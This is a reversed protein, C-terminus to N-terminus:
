EHRPPAQELAALLHPRFHELEPTALGVIKAEDDWRRLRIAQPAFPQKAFAAAEAPSYPGGQLALSRRSADSLSQGYHPDLQCLYRKASVHLRVPEAVAPGFHRALFQHGVVEHRDDVGHAAGDEPLDHLLHGVDHLLAAAILAPDAGEREAAAAAQLAHERQSVAEGLYLGGGRERFLALLRDALGQRAADEEAPRM